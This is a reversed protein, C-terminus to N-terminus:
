FYVSNSYWGQLLNNVPLSLHGYIAKRLITLRRNTRRTILQQLQKLMESVCGAERSTYDNPCFRAARRQVM